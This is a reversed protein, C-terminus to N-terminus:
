NNCQLTAHMSVDSRLDMYIETDFHLQQFLQEMLKVDVGSGLREHNGFPKITNINIIIALGRPNRKM